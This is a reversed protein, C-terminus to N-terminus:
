LYEIYCKEASDGVQFQKRILRTYGGKRQAFKERLEGFLKGIVLRDGNYARTDGKKALRAQKSTLPNYRLQMASAAMRRSAVTNEKALTVMRDASRKLEKAKAITTEIRGHRILSKLMNALMARKHSGTRGLKCTHKRHRM